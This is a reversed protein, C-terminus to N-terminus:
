LGAPRRVGRKLTQLLCPGTYGIHQGMVARAVADATFEVEDSTRSSWRRMRATRERASPKDDATPMAGGALERDDNLLFVGPYLFDLAHGFEHALIGAVTAPPLEVIEPAVVILQGTESCGAFARPMGHWSSEVELRVRATKGAGFLEHEKEEFRERVAIFYADTILFAEDDDVPTITTSCTRSGANM